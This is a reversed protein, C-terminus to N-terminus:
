CEEMTGMRILSNDGLHRLQIANALNDDPPGDQIVMWEVFDDLSLEAPDFFVNAYFHYYSM